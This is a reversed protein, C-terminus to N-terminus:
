RRARSTGSKTGGFYDVALGKNLLATGINVPGVSTETVWVEALFRGYKDPAKYTKVVVSAGVPALSENFQRAETYDPQGREPTDVGYLRFRGEITIHFGCDVSLDVTDGDVWHRVVASYTYAPEIHQLRALDM